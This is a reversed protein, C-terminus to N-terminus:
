GRRLIMVFFGAVLAYGLLPYPDRNLKSTIVIQYGGREDEKIIAEEDDDIEPAVDDETQVFPNNPDFDEADPVGDGDLDGMGDEELPGEVVSEYPVLHRVEDIVVSVTRNVASGDFVIEGGQVVRFQAITSYDGDIDISLYDGSELVIYADSTPLLLSTDYSTNFRGAAPSRKFGSDWYGGKNVIRVRLGVRWNNRVKVNFGASVTFPVDEDTLTIRDGSTVTYLNNPERKFSKIWGQGAESQQFSFDWDAYRFSEDRWEYALGDVIAISM